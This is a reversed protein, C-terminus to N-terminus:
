WRRDKKRIWYIRLQQTTEEFKEKRKPTTTWFAVSDRIKEIGDKVFKLGDKVILNFIHACCCM